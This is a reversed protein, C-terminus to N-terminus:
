SPTIEPASERIILNTKLIVTPHQVEGAGVPRQAEGFPRKIEHLLRAAAEKGIDATPQAITTLKPNILASYQDDGFGVVAIQEPIRVNNELMVEMAAIATPDNIAFLADPPNPLELFYKVYIIVKKMSLDYSIILDQDIPIKHKRLADLYGQLRQRSAILTDPGALHAIRKRGSRILHEVAKFAAEYDNIVVKPVNMEQCVRNFFVLPIGKRQVMKFHDFNRTEKSHSVIIGDVQQSVLLKVNAVETEYSEDSCCIISQYGDATFVQQASTIISPFFSSFIEPVIIGIVGTNHKSLGLALTNRQYDLKEALELVMKKTVEKVNPHNSLARSVTSKSIGLERAIDIISVNKPKM